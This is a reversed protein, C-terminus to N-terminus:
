RGDARGLALYTEATVFPDPWALAISDGPSLDGVLLLGHSETFPRPNGNVTLVPVSHPVGASAYIADYAYFPWVLGPIDIKATGYYQCNDEDM